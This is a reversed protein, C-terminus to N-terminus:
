VGKSLILVPATMSCLHAVHTMSTMVHQGMREEELEM